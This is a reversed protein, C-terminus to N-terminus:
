DGQVLGALQAVLAVTATDTRLIRKGMGFLSFGCAQLKELEYPTWGGEPGIALVARDPLTEKTIMDTLRKEGSPDALLKLRGAFLDGAEDEVFPKFLPRILVEPLQTCRAQQLGEILRKEYFEPDLVHSDFYCREVKAARLLVIRDVGLAALQAWLRKMVKPRPLALVLDVPPRLPVAEEFECQLTVQGRQVSVVTGEGSPGNLLGIRVRKGAEAQLVNRLHRAREDALVACGTEDVEVRQLLILNM